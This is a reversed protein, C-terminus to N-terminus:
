RAREGEGERWIKMEGEREEEARRARGGGGELACGGEGAGEKQWGSGLRVWVGNGM